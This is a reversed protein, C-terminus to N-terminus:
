LSAAYKDDDVLSLLENTDDVEYFTALKALTIFEIGQARGSELRSLTSIAIGTVENVERLTLERGLAAARNLRLQRLRSIVKKAM